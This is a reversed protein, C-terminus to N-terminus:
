RWVDLFLLVVALVTVSFISMTFVSESAMSTGLAAVCGGALIKEFLPLKGPNKHEMGKWKIKM